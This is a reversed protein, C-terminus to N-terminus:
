KTQVQFGGTLSVSLQRTSDSNKSLRVQSSKSEEPLCVDPSHRPHPHPLVEVPKVSSSFVQPGLIIFFPSLQTGADMEKSQSQPHM